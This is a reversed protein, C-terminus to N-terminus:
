SYHQFEHLAMTVEWISLTLATALSAIACIFLVAIFQEMSCNSLTGLFAVIVLTGTMIGSFTAFLM